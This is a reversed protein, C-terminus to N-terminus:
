TNAVRSHPWSTFGIESAPLTMHTHQESTLQVLSYRDTERLDCALVREVLACTDRASHVRDDHRHLVTLLNRQIFQAAFDTILDDSLDYRSPIQILISNNM